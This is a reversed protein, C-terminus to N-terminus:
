NSVSGISVPIAQNIPTSLKYMICIILNYTCVFDAIYNISIDSIDNCLSNM